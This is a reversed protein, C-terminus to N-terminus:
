LYIIVVDIYLASLKLHKSTCSKHETYNSYLDRVNLCTFNDASYIYLYIFLYIFIIHTHTNTHTHTHTYIGVSFVSVTVTYKCNVFYYELVVFIDETYM